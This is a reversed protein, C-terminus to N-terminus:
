PKPRPTTSRSSDRPRPGCSTRWSRTRPGCSRPATSTTRRRPSSAWASARRSTRACTPSARRRLYCNLFDARPIGAAESFTLALEDIGSVTMVVQQSYVQKKFAFMQQKAFRWICDAASAAKMSWAHSFWLPYFKYYRKYSLVGNNAELLADMQGGRYRCYGCEMDAYEVITVAGDAKGEYRNQSLDIRKRREERPDMQFDWLSGNFFRAGDPTVYGPVRVPGWGSEVAVWMGKLGAADREPALSAQAKTRYLSETRGSIWGLDSSATM